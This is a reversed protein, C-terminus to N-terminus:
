GASASGKTTVTSGQLVEASFRASAWIWEMSQMSTSGSSRCISSYFQKSVPLSRVRDRKGLTGFYLDCRHDIGDISTFDTAFLAIIRLVPGDDM